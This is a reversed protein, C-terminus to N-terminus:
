ETQKNFTDNKLERGEVWIRNKYVGGGRVGIGVVKFECATFTHIYTHIDTCSGQANPHLIQKVIM